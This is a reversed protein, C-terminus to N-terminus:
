VSAAEYVCVFIDVLSVGVSMCVHLFTYAVVSAAEYVHLCMSMCAYVYRKQAEQLTQVYM